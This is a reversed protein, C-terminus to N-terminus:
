SLMKRIRGILSSIKPEGQAVARMQARAAPSNTACPMCLANGKEDLFKLSSPKKCVACIKPAIKGTREEHCGKCMFGGEALRFKEDWDGIEHQCIKCRVVRELRQMEGFCFCCLQGGKYSRAEDARISRGCRTCSRAAAESQKRNYCPICFMSRAYYGSDYEDIQAGCNLCYVM